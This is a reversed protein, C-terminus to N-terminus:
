FFTNIWLRFIPLQSTNVAKKYTEPKINVSVDNNTSDEISDLEANKPILVIEEGEFSYNLKERAEKIVFADSEVYNLKNKLDKNTKELFELNKESLQLRSKKKYIASIARMSSFALLLSIILTLYLIYKFKMKAM